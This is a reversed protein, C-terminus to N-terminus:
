RISVIKFDQAPGRTQLKATGNADSAIHPNAAAGDVNRLIFAHLAVHDRNATRHADVALDCAIDNGHHAAQRESRMGHNAALYRSDATRQLAIGLGLYESLHVFDADVETLEPNAPLAGLIEARIEVLVKMADPVM